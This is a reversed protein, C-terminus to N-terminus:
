LNACYFASEEMGPTSFISTSNQPTATDEHILPEGLPLYFLKCCHAISTKWKVGRGVHSVNCAYVFELPIPRRSKVYKVHLGSHADLFQVQFTLKETYHLPTSWLGYCVFMPSNCRTKLDNCVYITFLENVFHNCMPQM